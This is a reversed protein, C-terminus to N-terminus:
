LGTAIVKLGLATLGALAGGEYKLDSRIFTGMPAAAYLATIDALTYTTGGAAQYQAFTAAANGLLSAFGADIMGACVYHTPTGTGAANCGTKWM